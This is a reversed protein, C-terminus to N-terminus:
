DESETDNRLQTKEVKPTFFYRSIEEFPIGLLICSRAIEEGTFTSKNMMRSSLTGESIGLAVSFQSQAGFKEVIRGRLKSYDFQPIEVM